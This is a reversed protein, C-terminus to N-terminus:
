LAHGLGDFVGLYDDGQDIASDEFDTLTFFRLELWLNLYRAHNQRETLRTNILLYLLELQSVQKIFVSLLFVALSSGAFGFSIDFRSKM